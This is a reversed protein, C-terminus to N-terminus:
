LINSGFIIERNKILRPETPNIALAKDIMKCAEIKNGTYFYAVSLLDYPLSGWSEAESIYTKPRETIKLAELCLAIVAYNNGEKEEFLAFDLWPERLHPAETVSLMHYKRANAKDGLAAYSKAIYRMSAAREDRWVASPMALHKLLTEVCKDWKGYYMYERGLYHMNRDNKPDEKVSMELLPLYQARSKEPDAHHNLQVGEAEATILPAKGEYKLVEHVPNVWKFGNRSHINDLWFVYGESGDARFNWTYRYRLQRVGAVWANEVKKRWDPEFLEDLDTCVCIDADAPVLQLSRNRATDFRWPTIKESKVTVGNKQLLEVTNDTSGTDLVFIGDAESM